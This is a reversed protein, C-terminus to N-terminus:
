KLFNIIDIANFFLQKTYSGIKLLKQKLRLFWIPRQYTKKYAIPLRTWDIKDLENTADNHYKKSIYYPLLSSARLKDILLKYDANTEEFPELYSLNWLMHQKPDHLHQTARHNVDVDQNYNALTKNLFAVKYQLAIRIWLDFDEGLKLKPNFGGLKEFITRPISTSISTLPMCLTKAYVQCYNIYGKIFDKEIGIPATRTKHKTENIITYNTGYIGAEPYEKILNHMEELFTPEWWDDADLFCIYESKSAAVGINRATSVGANSQQLLKAQPSNSGWLENIHKEAIAASDDNSGDDVVILEYDLFTQSKVSHLAKAIYLAKNYLPIIVSFM